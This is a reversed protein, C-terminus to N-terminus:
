KLLIMKQQATFGSATIQCLYIGSALNAADFAITHEGRVFPRDAATGVVQGLINSVRVTVWGDRALEFRIQTRGNFPNPYNPYLMGSQVVPAQNEPASLLPDLLLLAHEFREALQSVHGGEFSEWHFNAGLADLSDGFALNQPYFGLEDQEGCDFFITLQDLNDQERAARAPLHALWQQYVPAVINGMPGLVFDVWHPPNELNPSFAGAATYAAETFFGADPDFEYPPTGGNEDLVEDMFFDFPALNLFGSLSYTTGFVDPHDLATHMAGYGGMSHGMLVRKAPTAETQFNADMFAVVDVAVYDERSGYLESNSWMSGLYPGCNGNPLVCIVPAISGEDIMVDLLYTTLSYSQPSAGMGHLFYIVPYQQVGDYGDPLYVMAYQLADLSNSYFTTDIVTGQAPASAMTVWILVVGWGLKRCLDTKM